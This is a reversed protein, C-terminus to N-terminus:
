VSVLKRKELLEKTAAMNLEFHCVEGSLGLALALLQSFYVTPLNKYPIKNEELTSQMQGLNFECLPCSSAIIEAGWLGAGNLIEGCNALAAKENGIVQYSGCCEHSGPFRVVSAGLAELFEEFIRAHERIDIAIEKPRMLTCGYYPAVKLGSLPVQVQGRIKDWGIKEDLFNLIHKVEVEGNYDPEEEMFLNITKRKEANNRMILNAQALTNYCMSCATILIDSGAEKARVLDRVPAVLRLLDDDALSVVAGCCNWRPLETFDVGLKRLSATLSEELNRAKTKLTCGPYYSVKM